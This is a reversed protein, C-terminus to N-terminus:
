PRARPWFLIQVSGNSGPEVKLGNKQAEYYGQKERREKIDGKSELEWRQHIDAKKEKKEEFFHSCNMTALCLILLIKKM